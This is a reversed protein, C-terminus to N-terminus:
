AWGGAIPVVHGTVFGCDGIAFFSVLAGVEEPKGLRGLPINKEIKGLAVPDALLAPPFYSPNAVYNPAIANVLINSPALERALTLTLANAGGRAAAYMGYNTLGRLPAASTIFLIRGGSQRKMPAAVAQALAFPRVMMAELGDRFDDLKATELPARIAPADDNSILTDIRGHATLAAEVIAAPDTAGTTAIGPPHQATLRDRAATDSFSPDQAVIKAGDRALRAISAPGVYQTANTILVVPNTLQHVGSILKLQKRHDDDHYARLAIEIGAPDRVCRRWGDHDGIGATM